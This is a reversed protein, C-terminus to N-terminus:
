NVIMRKYSIEGNSDTLKSIYIGNPVESADFKVTHSQGAEITGNFLTTVLRGIM